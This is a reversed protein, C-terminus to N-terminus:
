KQPPKKGSAAYGGDLQALRSVGKFIKAGVDAAAREFHM